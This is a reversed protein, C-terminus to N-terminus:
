NIQNLALKLCHTAFERPKWGTNKLSRHMLSDEHLVPVSNTELIYIKGRPTIIFDSSSYHRLGLARHATRAMEEVMKKEEFTLAIRKKAVELRAPMLAYLEEGRAREVVACSVTAGRVYEEVLAKSSHELTKRVSDKLEQFSHALRVGLASIGTSPKVIVPHLYNRFIHVLREDSSLDNETVLESEPTLLSYRRYLNKALEKNHSFSSALIGSGIFSTKLKELLQQVQGDEGYPGHLANWVVDARSLIRHPEESLGQFHWIGDRAIFVDLPEYEEPMERLLSLVYAGTKLSDDYAPSPGGRLVAVKIRTM